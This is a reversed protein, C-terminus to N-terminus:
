KVCILVCSCMSHGQSNSGTCVHQWNSSFPVRSMLLRQCLLPLPSLHSLLLDSHVLIRSPTENWLHQQSWEFVSVCQACVLESAKSQSPSFVVVELNKPQYSYRCSPLATHSPRVQSRGTSRQASQSRSGRRHRTGCCLTCLLSTPENEKETRCSWRGSVRCAVIWQRM